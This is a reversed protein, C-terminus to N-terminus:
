EKKKYMQIFLKNTIYAVFQKQSKNGDKALENRYVNLEKVTLTKDLFMQYVLRDAEGLEDLNIDEFHATQGTKEEEKKLCTIEKRFNELEVSEKKPIKESM